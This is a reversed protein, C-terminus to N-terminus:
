NAGNRCCPSIATKTYGISFDEIDVIFKSILHIEGSENIIMRGSSKIVNTVGHVTLEGMATVQQVGSDMPDFGLIKGFFEAKPYGASELYRDNFHQAMLGQDFEFDEIMVDFLVYRTSLDFYSTAEHNSAAIDQFPAESFFSIDTNISEYVQQKLNYASQCKQFNSDIQYSPFPMQPQWLPGYNEFQM